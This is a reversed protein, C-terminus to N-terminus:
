IDKLIMCAPGAWSWCSEEIILRRLKHAFHGCDNTTSISVETQPCTFEMEVWPCPFCLTM